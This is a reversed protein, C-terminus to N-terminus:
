RGAHRTAALCGLLVCPTVWVYWEPECRALLMAVTAVNVAALGAVALGVAPHRPKEALAAAAASLPV